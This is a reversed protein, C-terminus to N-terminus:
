PQDPFDLVIPCHDSMARAAELDVVECRTRKTVLPPSAFAYDLQAPFSDAGSKGWFTRLHSCNKGENADLRNDEALRVGTRDAPACASEDRVRRASLTFSLPSGLTSQSNTKALAAKLRMRSGFSSGRGTQDPRPTKTLPM